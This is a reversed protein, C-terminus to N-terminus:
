RPATSLLSRTSTRRARSAPGCRRWSPAFAIGLFVAVSTLNAWVLLAFVGTLPGYISGSSGSSALYLGLLLSFALWLLLGVAAGVALWSFGPQRRRPAYRLLATISALALLIGLPWRLAAWVAHTGTSTGYVQRAADAVAGGGVIIVFGLLAALGATVALLAARTYKEKSPRDREIGYIRNAGREVQGMATTLSVLAAILGFTLALTGGAAARELAENIPGKGQGPTLHQLTAVLVRGLKAQHVTGALGVLAIVLPIIALCLQLALARAHTFGDGYRFRIFSDKVLRGTRYRRLTTWADDASLEGGSMASTEPVRTATSM